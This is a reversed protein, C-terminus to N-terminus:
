ALADVRLETVRGGRVSATGARTGRLSWVVYDGEELAPYVGAVIDRGLVHRRRIVTHARRADGPRSVEVEAGLAAEPAYLILAGVGAGIDLVLADTAAPYPHVHAM